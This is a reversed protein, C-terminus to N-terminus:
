GLCSMTTCIYWKYSRMANVITYEKTDITRSSYSTTITTSTQREIRTTASLQTDNRSNNNDNNNNNNNDNNNNNNNNNDDDTRNWNANAFIKSVHVQCIIYFVINLCVPIWFIYQSVIWTSFANTDTTETFLYILSIVLGIFSPACTGVLIWYKWEEIRFVKRYVIIRFLMFSMCASIM